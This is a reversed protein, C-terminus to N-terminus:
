KPINLFFFIAYSNRRDRKFQNSEVSYFDAGIWQKCVEYGKVYLTRQIKGEKKKSLWRECIFPFLKDTEVDRVDIRDVFWSPRLNSNDHRLTIM